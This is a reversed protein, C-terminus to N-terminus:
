RCLDLKLVFLFQDCWYEMCAHIEGSAARPWVDVANAPVLNNQEGIVEDMLISVIHAHIASNPNAALSINVGKRENYGILIV